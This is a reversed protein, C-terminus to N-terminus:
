LQCIYYFIKQFAFSQFYFLARHKYSEKSKNINQNHSAKGLSFTSELQMLM